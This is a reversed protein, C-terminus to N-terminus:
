SKMRSRQPRRQHLRAARWSASSIRDACVSPQSGGSPTGVGILLVPLPETLGGAVIIGITTRRSLRTLAVERQAQAQQIEQLRLREAHLRDSEADVSASIYDRHAATPEPAGQRWDALWTRATELEIGRLLMVEQRGREQWRMAAEHLRTHERIWDVDSRLAMVLERASRAFANPRTFYIWNLRRLEKPANAADIEIAVVPIIRKSAAQAQALERACEKSAASAPSVVFVVTHSSGILRELRLEWDEGPAIDHRDVFAEFGALELAALLELAFESADLRAYSIFVRLREGLPQMHRDGSECAIM